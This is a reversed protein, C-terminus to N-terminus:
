FKIGTFNSCCLSNEYTFDVRVLNVKGLLFRHAPALDVYTAVSLYDIGANDSMVVCKGIGDFKQCDSFM